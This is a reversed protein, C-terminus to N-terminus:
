LAALTHHQRYLVMQLFLYVDIVLFAQILLVTTSDMRVYAAFVLASLFRVFLVSWVVPLLARCTILPTVKLSLCRFLSIRSCHSPICNSPWLSSSLPPTHYVWCFQMCLSAWCSWVRQFVLSYSPFITCLWILLFSFVYFFTTLFLRVLHTKWTETFLM